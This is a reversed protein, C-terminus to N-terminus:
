DDACRKWRCGGGLFCVACYFREGMRRGLCGCAHHVQSTFAANVSVILVSRRTGVSELAEAILGKTWGSLRRNTNKGRDSKIVSTLDEVFLQEAQNCAQHVARYIITQVQATHVSQRADWKLNGLNNKL